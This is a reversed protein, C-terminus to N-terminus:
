FPNNCENEDFQIGKSNKFYFEQKLVRAKETAKKLSLLKLDCLKICTNVHFSSKWTVVQKFAKHDLVKTM